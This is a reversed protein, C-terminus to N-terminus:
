FEINPSDLLIHLNSFLTRTMTPLIQSQKSYKCQVWDQSSPQTEQSSKGGRYTASHESERVFHRSWEEQRQMQVAVNARKSSM